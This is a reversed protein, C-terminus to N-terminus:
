RQGDVLRTEKPPCKSQIKQMLVGEAGNKRGNVNVGVRSFSEELVV